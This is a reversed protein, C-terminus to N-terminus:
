YCGPVRMSVSDFVDPCFLNNQKVWRFGCFFRDFYVYMQFRFYINMKIIKVM